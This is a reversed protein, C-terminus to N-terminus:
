SFNEDIMETMGALNELFKSVEQQLADGFINSIEPKM